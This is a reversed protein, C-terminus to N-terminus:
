ISLGLKDLQILYGGPTGQRKMWDGLFDRVAKTADLDEEPVDAYAAPILDDEILEAVVQDDFSDAVGLYFGNLSRAVSGKWGSSQQQIPVALLEWQDETWEPKTQALRNQVANHMSGPNDVVEGAVGLLWGGLVVRDPETLPPWLRGMVSDLHAVWENMYSVADTAMNLLVSDRLAWWGDEEIEIETVPNRRRKDRKPDYPTGPNLYIIVPLM